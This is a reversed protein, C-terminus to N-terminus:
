STRLADQIKQTDTFQRFQKIKNEKILFVHSFSVDFKKDHKTVGQYRGNVMIHNELNLIQDLIAHFEKFNALMNPFYNEFVEKKGTYTGGNPMGESTIWEINDDCLKLYTSGDKNKFAIYFQKILEENSM